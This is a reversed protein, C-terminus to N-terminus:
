TLRTATTIKLIASSIFAAQNNEIFIYKDDNGSGSSHRLEFSTDIIIEIDKADLYIFADIAIVKRANSSDAQELSSDM